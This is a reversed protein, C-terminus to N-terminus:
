CVRVEKRFFVNSASYLTMTLYIIGAVSYFVFPITGASMFFMIVMGVFSLTSAILGLMYLSLKLRNEGQITHILQLSEKIGQDATNPNSLMALLDDVKTLILYLSKNSTRRKMYKVKVETLDVMKQKLLLEKQEPTWEPHKRGIEAILESREEQTVIISDKLFQLAGQMRQVETLSRNELYETLRNNFRECRVAGLASSGIAVVSGLGFFTSSISSLASAPATSVFTESLKGTLYALSGASLIAGSLLRTEARRQGEADGIAQSRKLEIKGGDLERLSFFSWFIGAYYGLHSVIPDKPGIAPLAFLINRVLSLTDDAVRMGALINGNSGPISAQNIARVSKRSEAERAKMEHVPPAERPLLGVHQYYRFIRGVKKLEASSSLPIEKGGMCIAPEGIKKFEIQFPTESNETKQVSQHFIKVLCEELTKKHSPLIKQVDLYQPAFSFGKLQITLNAM